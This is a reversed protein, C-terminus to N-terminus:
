VKFKVIKELQKWSLLIDTQGVAYPAVEYPNYMFRVGEPLICFNTPLALPNEPELLLDKLTADPAMEKKTEVFAVELMARLAEQDTFLQNLLLSKGTNLDYTTIATGYYGHAGGTYGSANMEVSVYQGNQWLLQGDVENYYERDTVDPMMDMDAALINRMHARARDVAVEIPLTNDVELISYVGVRLSDNIAATAAQNPGGTFDPYNLSIRYCISDRMCEKVSKSVVVSHLPAINTKSNQERCAIATFLLFFPLAFIFKMRDSNNSFVSNTKAPFHM